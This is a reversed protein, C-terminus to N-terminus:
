VYTADCQTQDTQLKNINEPQEAEDMDHKTMKQTFDWTVTRNPKTKM